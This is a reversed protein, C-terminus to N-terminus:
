KNKKTAKRPLQVTKQKKIWEIKEGPAIDRPCYNAEKTSYHIPLHSQLMEIRSVDGDRMDRAYRYGKAFAAPGLEKDLDANASINCLQCMHCNQTKGLLEVEKESMRHKRAHENARLEIWPKVVEFQAFFTEENQALDKKVNKEDLPDIRLNGNEDMCTSVQTTCALAPKGNVKVGCGGCAGNGCNGRFVLSGDHHHKIRQLLEWVSEGIKPSLQYDHTRPVFDMSPNYRFVTAHIKKEASHTFSIKKTKSAPKKPAKKTAM